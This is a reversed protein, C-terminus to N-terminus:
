FMFMGAMIVTLMIVTPMLMSPVIVTAVIVTAVIMAGRSEHRHNFDGFVQRAAGVAQGDLAKTRDVTMAMATEVQGVNGANRDSRDTFGRVADIRRAKETLLIRPGTPKEPKIYRDFVYQATQWGHVAPGPAGKTRRYTGAPLNEALRAMCWSSLSEPDAVGGTIAHELFHRRAQAGADIIVIGHRAHTAVFKGQEQAISLLGKDGTLDYAIGVGHLLERTAIGKDKISDNIPFFLWGYNQQITTYIAKKLISDRKEFIKREPENKQVAQAFIVFPMLAFRQYYPGETYYGDPSFLLETQRLFGTEGTKDSGKLAIDVLNKDGLVYGTMGVGATAWTASRAM